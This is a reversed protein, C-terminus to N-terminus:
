VSAKKMVTWYGYNFCVGLTRSEYGEAYQYSIPALGAQDLTEVVEQFLFSHLWIPFESETPRALMEREGSNPSGTRFEPITFYFLGNGNLCATLSCLASGLDNCLDFAGSAFIVDFLAPPNGLWTKPLSHHFDHVFYQGHPHMAKAEELMQPSLDIGTVQVTKPLDATMHGPGCGVDLLRACSKPDKHISELFSRGKFYFPVSNYYAIFDSTQAQEDYFGAIDAPKNTNM